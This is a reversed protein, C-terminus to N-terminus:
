VALSHWVRNLGLEDTGQIDSRKVRTVRCKWIFHRIIALRSRIWVVFIEIFEFDPVGRGRRGSYVLCHFEWFFLSSTKLSKHLPMFSAWVRLIKLDLRVAILVLLSNRLKLGRYAFQIGLKLLNFSPLVSRLWLAPTGSDLSKRYAWSLLLYSVHETLNVGLKWGQSIALRYLLGTPFKLFKLIHTYWNILSSPSNFLM